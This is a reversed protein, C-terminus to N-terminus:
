ADAISSINNHILASSGYTDSCGSVDIRVKTSTTEKSSFLLLVLPIVNHVRGREWSCCPMLGTQAISHNQTFDGMLTICHQCDPM